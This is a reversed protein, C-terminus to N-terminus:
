LATSGFENRFATLNPQGKSEDTVAFTVSDFLSAFTAGALPADLAEHFARAVMVPDNCNSDCGWAGLVLHKYGNRAATALIGKIRTKLVALLEEAPMDGLGRAYPAPSSIVSVVVPTEMTLYGVERFVEVHPSVLLANSHLSGGIERNEDYFPRAEIASISAFLTSRRCLEGEQAHQGILADGGAEFANAFNLVLVPQAGEADARGAQIALAAELMDREVVSVACPNGLTGALTDDASELLTEVEEASYYDVDEQISRSALFKRPGDPRSYEGRVIAGETEQFVKTDLSMAMAM